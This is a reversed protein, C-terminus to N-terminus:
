QSLQFSSAVCFADVYSSLKMSGLATLYGEASADELMAFIPLDFSM